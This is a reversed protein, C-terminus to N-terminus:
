KSEMVYVGNWDEPPPNERMVECRNIYVLSPNTYIFSEENPIFYELESSENFLAIARNWEQKQYAAIGEEFKEKCALEQETIRDRLGMIEYVDIPKTRGKVVIRDLYRFVCRDGYKEAEEKTDATVMTYVGFQKAGSECRAALNVNDGMMTYNFRSESGMNGTVMKGTNIGIRNRMHQVIEPWREGEERWKKRLEALKYQMLQSVVCAKYAHDKHPVPAGFFAVIADGIYKDLTGGHERVINTMASLYENILRVLTKAPMRESFTSFSQIDSFFATMYVEDGGLEPEKGEEVMEEVIAPSVYSSFLGRIRRKERQEVIYEYSQTTIYGVLMAVLIAVVDTMTNLQLFSWLTLGFVSISFGVYFVFGWLGSLWRVAIIMIAIAIIVFVINALPSTHHIYNGSLVTQIANAHMEVGPMTGQKAFPTAHLDHLEPMTAGVLVIKDKFADTHKLGFDPDSFSNIQFTSDESTLIVTSDDIVTEFSHRPFTGPPGFYNISMLNDNYKPIQYSGFSLIEGTESIDTSDLDAYLKLLELGLSYLKENNYDIGLIYKRIAGDTDHQARVIGNKNPNASQLVRNPRVLMLATSRSGQGRNQVTSQVNTGLVVNKHKSIAEAFLTDNTLDYNDRKDFLVDFGIVKAGAENLHEVLKAYLNTPWPYKEPIEQDAQQSISVIVVSTDEIAIPGRYEFFQDTIDLKLQMVPSSFAILITILLSGLLLGPLVLRSKWTKQTAAM